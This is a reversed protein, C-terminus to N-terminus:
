SPLTGQTEFVDLAAAGSAPAAPGEAALTAAPCARVRIVVRLRRARQFLRSIFHANYAWTEIHM